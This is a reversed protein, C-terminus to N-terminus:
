DLQGFSNFKNMAKSFDDFIIDKLALEAAELVPAIIRKEESSFSGLVYNILGNESKEKGIGLKIRALNNDGGLHEIISEVGRHGGSSGAARLRLRGVTLDADDYIIILDDNTLKYYNKVAAVAQGSNNMYTQPKVLLVQEGDLNVTATESLLRTNKKFSVAHKEALINLLDFGINHRTGAYKKGPNGLGVVIKM